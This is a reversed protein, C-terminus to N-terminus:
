VTRNGIGKGLDVNIRPYFTKSVNLFTSTYADKLIKPHILYSVLTVNSLKTCPPFKDKGLSRDFEKHLIDVFIEANAIIGKNIYRVRSINPLDSNLIEKKIESKPIIQVFITVRINM